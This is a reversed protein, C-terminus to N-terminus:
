RGPALVALSRETRQLAQNPVPGRYCPVFGVGRGGLTAASGTALTIGLGTM